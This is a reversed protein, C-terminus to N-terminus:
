YKPLNHILDEQFGNGLVHLVLLPRRVALELDRLTPQRQGVQSHEVTLPSAIAPLEAILKFNNIIVGQMFTFHSYLCNGPYEASAHSIPTTTSFFLYAPIYFYLVLNALFIPM